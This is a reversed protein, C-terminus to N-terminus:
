DFLTFLLHGRYMIIFFNYRLLKLNSALPLATCLTRAYSFIDRHFTDLKLSELMSCKGLIDVLFQGGDVRFKGLSLKKLLRLQGILSLDSSSM